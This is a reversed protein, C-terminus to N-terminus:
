KQRKGQPFPRSGPDWRFEIRESGARTTECARKRGQSVTTDLRKAAAWGRCVSISERCVTSAFVGMKEMSREEIEGFIAIIRIWLKAWKTVTEVHKEFVRRELHIIAVTQPLEVENDRTDFRTSQQDLNLFQSM